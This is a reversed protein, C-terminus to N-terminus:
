RPKEAGAGVSGNMATSASLRLKNMCLRDFTHAFRVSRRPSGFKHTSLYYRPENYGHGVSMAGSECLVQDVQSTGLRRRSLFFSSLLAGKDVLPSSSSRM